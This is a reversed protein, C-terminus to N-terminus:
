KELFPFTTIGLARPGVHWLGTFSGLVTAHSHSILSTYLVTGKYLAINVHLFNIEVAM